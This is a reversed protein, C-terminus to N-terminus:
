CWVSLRIDHLTTDYCIMVIFDSAFGLAFSAYFNSSEIVLQRAQNAKAELDHLKDEYLEDIM